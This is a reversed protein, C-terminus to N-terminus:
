QKTMTLAPRICEVRSENALRLAFPQMVSRTRSVASAARRAERTTANPLSSAKASEEPPAVELATDNTDVPREREIQVQRRRPIVARPHSYKEALWDARDLVRLAGHTQAVGSGRM